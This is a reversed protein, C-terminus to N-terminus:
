WAQKIWQRIKKDLLLKGASVGLTGLRIRGKLFFEGELRSGTFDPTVQVAEGYFPLLMALIGLVKGTLAPDSFGFIGRVRLRTPLLHRLLKKAERRIKAFTAKHEEKQLFEKVQRIKHSIERIKGASREKKDADPTEEEEPEMEEEKVAEEEEPEEEETEAKVEEEPEQNAEQAGDTGSLLKEIEEGALRSLNAEGEPERNERIAKEVEAKARASVSEEDLTQEPECASTEDEEALVEEPRNAERKKKGPFVPLGLIRVGYSLAGKEWAFSLQLLPFLWSVRGNIRTEEPDAKGRLRYRIPVLLIMMLLGILILALIGIFKLFFLLIKGIIRM